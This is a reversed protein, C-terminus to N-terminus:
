GLREVGGPAVNRPLALLHRRREGHQEAQRAALRPQEVGALRPAPEDDIEVLHHRAVRRLLRPEGLGHVALEALYQALFIGLLEEGRDSGGGLDLAVLLREGLELALQQGAGAGPSAATLGAGARPRAGGRMRM